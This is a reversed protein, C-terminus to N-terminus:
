FLALVSQLLNLAIETASDAATAESSDTEAQGTVTTQMDGNLMATQPQSPPAVGTQMDGAFAPITLALTFVVACFLRGFNKM